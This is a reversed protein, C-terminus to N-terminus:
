SRHPKAASLADQRYQFLVKGVHVVYNNLLEANPKPSAFKDYVAPQVALESISQKGISTAVGFHDHTAADAHVFAENRARDVVASQDSKEM